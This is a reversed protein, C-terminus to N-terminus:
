SHTLRFGLKYTWRNTEGGHTQKHTPAFFILGRKPLTSIVKQLFCCLVNSSFNAEFHVFVPDKAWRSQAELPQCLLYLAGKVNELDYKWWFLIAEGYHHVNYFIEVFDQFYRFKM